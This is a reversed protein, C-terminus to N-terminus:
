ILKHNVARRYLFNLPTLILQISAKARGQQVLGTVFREMKERDIEDLRYNGLAPLIHVRFSIEYVRFSNEKITTAWVDKFREYYQKLTPTPPKEEKGMLPRGLTLNARMIGAVKEALAKPGCKKTRRM